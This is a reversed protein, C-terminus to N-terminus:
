NKQIFTILAPIGSDKPGTMKTTVTDLSFPVHKRVDELLLHQVLCHYRSSTKAATYCQLTLLTWQEMVARHPLTPTHTRHPAALGKGTRLHEQM